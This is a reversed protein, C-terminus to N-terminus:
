QLLNLAILPKVCWSLTLRASPVTPQSVMWTLCFRWASRKKRAGQEDSIAHVAFLRLAETSGTFFHRAVLTNM